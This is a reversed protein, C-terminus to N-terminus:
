VVLFTQAAAVMMNETGHDSRVKRPVLNSEQLAKIYLNAIVYPENNSPILELWILVVPGMSAVTYQFGM